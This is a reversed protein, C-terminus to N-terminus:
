IASAVVVKTYESEAVQNVGIAINDTSLAMPDTGIELTLDEVGPVQYIQKIMRTYIVDENMNLGAFVNGDEDLGGIYQLIKTRVQEDGNAPYEDGATINVDVYIDVETAYSFSISQDNGAKDKVIETVTGFSRIGAAKSDLIAQAIEVSNGSLLYCEISKPPRGEGDVVETNNEIVLASRVNDVDLLTARISDITSSGGRALSSFYRLRFDVDTEVDSGGSTAADNTVTDVGFAPNVIETIRGSSVNGSIGLGAAIIEAEAEGAVITVEETTEFEIGDNTALVFGQAIITDNDGTFKVVGTSRTAPNRSLAIYKAAYDLNVGEATEIFASYYVKEALQWVLSMSWAMVRIFIGIPSRSALNVNEGFLNRANENMTEVIDNYQKRVFGYEKLGFM